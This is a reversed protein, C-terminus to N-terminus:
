NRGGYYYTPGGGGGNYYSAETYNGSKGRLNQTGVSIPQSQLSTLSKDLQDFKYRIDLSLNSDEILGIYNKSFGIVGFIVLAM